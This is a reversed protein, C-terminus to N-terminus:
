NEIIVEGKNAKIKKIAKETAAEVLIKYSNKVKGKGLLKNYGFDKLNIVILNNDKKLDKKNEVIADLQYVNIPNYKKTYGHNNFKRGSFYDPDKWISPKKQDGRKGTGSLGRGGRHGARHYRAGLGQYRYGRKKLHKKSKHVVM